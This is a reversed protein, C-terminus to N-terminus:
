ARKARARSEARKQRLRVGGAQGTSARKARVCLKEAAVVGANSISEQEPDARLFVDAVDRAFEMELKLIKTEAAVVQPLSRTLSALASSTNPSTLLARNQGSGLSSSSEARKRRLRVRARVEGIVKREQSKDKKGFLTIGSSNSARAEAVEVAVSTANTGVLNFIEDSLGASLGSRASSLRDLVRKGDVLFDSELKILEEGLDDSLPKRVGYALLADSVVARVGKRRYNILARPRSQLASTFSFDYSKYLENLSQLKFYRLCVPHALSRL